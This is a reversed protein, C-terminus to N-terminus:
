SKAGKVPLKARYASVRGSNMIIVISWGGGDEYVDMTTIMGNVKTTYTDFKLDRCYALVERYYALTLNSCGKTLAFDTMTKQWTLDTEVELLIPILAM